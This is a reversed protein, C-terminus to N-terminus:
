LIDFIERNIKSYIKNVERLVLNYEKVLPHNNLNYITKAMKKSENLSLASNFNNDVISDEYSVIAMDKKYSLIKIEDNNVIDEEIIKLKKFNIDKDLENKLECVLDFLFKDM